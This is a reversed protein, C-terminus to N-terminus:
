IKITVDRQFEKNLRRIIELKFVVFLQRWHMGTFCYVRRTWLVTSVVLRCYHTGHFRPQAFQGEGIASKRSIGGRLVYKHSEKNRIHRRIAIHDRM